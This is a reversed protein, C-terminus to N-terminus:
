MATVILALVHLEFLESAGLVRQVASRVHRTAGHERNTALLPSLFTIRAARSLGPLLVRRLCHNYTDSVVMVHEDSPDVCMVVWGGFQARTGDGDAYGKEGNGTLTLM